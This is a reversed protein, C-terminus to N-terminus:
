MEEYSTALRLILSREGYGTNRLFVEDQRKQAAPHYQAMRIVTKSNVGCLKATPENGREYLSLWIKVRTDLSISRGGGGQILNVSKALALSHQHKLRERRRIYDRSEATSLGKLGEATALDFLARAIRAQVRQETTLRKWTKSSPM